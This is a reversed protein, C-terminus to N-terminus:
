NWTGFEALFHIQREVSAGLSKCLLQHGFLHWTDPYRDNVLESAFFRRWGDMRGVQFM